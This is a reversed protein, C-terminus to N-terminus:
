QKNIEKRLEAAYAEAEEKSMGHCMVTLPKGFQECAVGYGEDYPFLTRKVTFTKNFIGM